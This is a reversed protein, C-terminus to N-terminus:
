AHVVLDVTHELAMQEAAKVDSYSRWGAETFERTYVEGRPKIPQWGADCFLRYHWVGNRKGHNTVPPECWLWRYNHPFFGHLYKETLRSNKGRPNGPNGFDDTEYFSLSLHLCREYDPNKWWGSTHMGEDRSFLFLMGLHPLYGRCFTKYASGNPTQRQMYEMAPGRHRIAYRAIEGALASSAFLFCPGGDVMRILRPEKM